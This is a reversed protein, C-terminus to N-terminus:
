TSFAFNGKSLCASSSKIRFSFSKKLRRGELSSFIMLAAEILENEEPFGGDKIFKVTESFNKQRAQAKSGAHLWELDQDVYHLEGSKDVLVNGFGLDMVDLEEAFGEQLELLKNLHDLNRLNIPNSEVFESLVISSLGFYDNIIHLVKILPRHQKVQLQRYRSVYKNIIQFRHKELLKEYSLNKEKEYRIRVIYFVGKFYTRLVIKSCNLFYVDSQEKPDFKKLIEDYMFWSLPNRESLPYSIVRDDFADSNELLYYSSKDLRLNKQLLPLFSKGNIKLEKYAIEIKEKENLKSPDFDAKYVDANLISSFPQISCSSTSHSM